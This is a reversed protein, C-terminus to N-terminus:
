KRIYKYNTSFIVYFTYILKLINKFGAHTNEM